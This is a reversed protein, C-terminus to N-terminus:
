RNRRSRGYRSALRSTTRPIRASRTTTFFRPSRSNRAVSRLICAGCGNSATRGYYGPVVLRLPFGHEAPLPAGNLEYALLVDGATLRDLPLDKVYWECSTGAFDGGDLGYSWVFRARPYIGIDDLLVALDVGGWRVNSVRRAPVTPELPNGCCQHVAEITRKPLAKLAKLDFVRTRDVLGDIFLSWREPEVRPVGLHALM